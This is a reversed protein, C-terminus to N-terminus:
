VVCGRGSTGGRWWVVVVALVVGSIVLQTGPVIAAIAFAVVWAVVEELLHAYSTRAHTCTLSRKRIIRTRAHTRAHTHSESASRANSRHLNLVSRRGMV